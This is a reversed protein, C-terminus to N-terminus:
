RRLVFVNALPFSFRRQTVVTPKRYYKQPIITKLITMQSPMFKTKRRDSFAIQSWWALPKWARLIIIELVITGM